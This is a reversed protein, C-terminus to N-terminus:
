YLYEYCRYQTNNYIQKIFKNKGKRSKTPKEPTPETPTPLPTVVPSKEVQTTSTSTSSNSAHNPSTSAATLHAWTKPQSPSEPKTSIPPATTKPKQETTKKKKKEEVVPESEEEKKSEQEVRPAREKKPVVSTSFEEQAYNYNDIEVEDKLFRFIDNLVYYGNPQTALYFTQSFKKSPGNDNCMEGLVQVLIGNNASVQSDVQTVLVKCDVFQCQEIKKRIEEQGKYTTSVVGEDGRVFVSDDNYFAYLRHPKKNLFTYYERVFILGVDQISPTSTTM